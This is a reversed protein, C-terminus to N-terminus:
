ASRLIERPGRGYTENFVRYFQAYSGFGAAYMAETVTCQAERSYCEWFRGLRLNNRYRSLPIGIQRRFTRSLYASSVGCRRALKDLSEGEDTQSLLHLVKGVSPHVQMGDCRVKGETQYRWALLLLHRLGANLADPDNHSYRFASEVGFGGERNLIDADISGEMTAEMLNRLFGLKLPDLVTRLMQEQEPAKAKLATYPENRCAREILGPKFVAVYYQADPSRHILQHEQAPFMWLLTGAGSSQTHGDVVYTVEGKVVLNLEL